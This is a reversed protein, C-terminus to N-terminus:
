KRASRWQSPPGLKPQLIRAVEGETPFRDLSAKSFVEEGDLLVEFRGKSGTKLEVGDLAPAWGDLLETALSV